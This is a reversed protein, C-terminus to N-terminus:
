LEITQTVEKTCIVNYGRRRLEKVLEKDEFVSISPKGKTKMKSKNKMEIFYKRLMETFREAMKMNPESKEQNWQYTATKPTSGGAKIVINGKILFNLLAGCYAKNLDIGVLSPTLPGNWPTESCKCYIDTMVNFVRTELTQNSKAM